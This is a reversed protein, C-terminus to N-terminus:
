CEPQKIDLCDFDDIHKQICKRVEENKAVDLATKGYRDKISYNCDPYKLLEQLIDLYGYMSAYHLATGYGRDQINVNLPTHPNPNNRLSLLEKVIDIKCYYVALTLPTMSVMGFVIRSRNIDICKESNYLIKRLRQVNGNICCKFIDDDM